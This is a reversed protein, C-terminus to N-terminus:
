TAEGGAAPREGADGESGRGDGSQENGGPVGCGGGRSGGGGSGCGGRADGCQPFGPRCCFHVKKKVRKGSTGGKKRTFPSTLTEALGLQAMVLKQSNWRFGNNVVWSIRPDARLVGIPVSEIENGFLGFIGLREVFFSALAADSAHRRFCSTWLDPLQLCPLGQERPRGSGARCACCAAFSEPFTREAEELLNVFGMTSGPQTILHEVNLGWFVSESTQLPAFYDVFHQGSHHEVRDILARAMTREYMWWNSVSFRTQANRASVNTAALSEPFRRLKLTHAFLDGCSADGYLDHTVSCRWRRPYWSSGLHFPRGDSGYSYAVLESFNYKRFPFSEADSVWYIGCHEPGDAAGYFKKLSQYCQGGFKAPCKRALAERLRSFPRGDRARFSEDRLKERKQWGGTMLMQRAVRYMRAGLLAELSLRVAQAQACVLGHRRCFAANQDEDDFVIVTTPPEGMALRYTAEIRKALHAFNPAHVPVLMCARTTAPM